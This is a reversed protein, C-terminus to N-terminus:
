LKTEPVLVKLFNQTFHDQSFLQAKESKLFAEAADLYQNYEKETISKLFQYLKKNDKFKRRDIFCEEPIYDTVNSAGWYVPVVGAAFCDFIKETIYGKIDKTNEYCISFKYGKLVANKDPIPGRWNKRLKKKGWFHGYLDFEGEKDDFFRITKEREKYLQKPHKSGLRRAILTCFKKDKFPIVDPIRGKLVPYFFKFYKKNDVLDDDWTFVKGFQEHVRPDHLEPQVTPPEWTFLVLQEKPHTTFNYGNLRARPELFGM